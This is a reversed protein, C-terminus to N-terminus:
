KGDKSQRARNVELEGHARDMRAKEREPSDDSGASAEEELAQTVHEEGKKIQEDKETMVNEGVSTQICVFMLDSNTDFCLERLARGSKLIPM